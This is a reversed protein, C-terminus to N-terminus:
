ARWEGQTEYREYLDLWQSLVGLSFSKFTIDEQAPDLRFGPRFLGAGRPSDVALFGFQRTPANFGRKARRITGDPIAGRMAEKLIIKQRRMDMKASDPLRACYEVLRHDLFPSRVELSNAMSMRDAKVLIDDALWTKIDVYLSADLFGAGEVEAFARAFTEYPDYGDLAALVDPHLLRAKDTETFVERWSYHARRADLDHGALFRRLKYDWSVKRYSPKAWREAAALAARRLPGPVLSWLRHLQDARYTPYGALLEDAGDGSLAVTVKRRAAQNLLYTPMMSTDAFPEDVHWVLRALQDLPLSPQRTVEIEVGMHAAAARAFESEDFSDEEFGVCYAHVRSASQAAMSAVVSASDVGGSLFAGLPVDSRLRIAVADDFLAKFEEPDHAARPALVHAALDWYRRPALGEGDLHYWACEAAGLRSIGAVITKPSLIYGLSLFDSVARLDIAAVARVEPLGMLAKMESAFAFFGPVAFVYLPKKGLRDRALFLRRTAPQWIAFAFMGVLRDLCAEGWREFARLLVETDSHTAFREGQAELEARVAPFNYIEGNFAIVAGSPGTMPQGGQELDIIALRRHGLHVPGDVFTGAGDPGRHAISSLMRALDAASAGAEGGTRVFGAIGCM